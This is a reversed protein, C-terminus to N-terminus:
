MLRAVVDGYMRPDIAQFVSAADVLEPLALRPSRSVRFNFRYEGLATLLDICERTGRLGEHFEFVVVPVPHSLGRLAAPELGEVDLKFLDPKGHEAILADLTTTRVRESGGWGRYFGGHSVSEVSLTARENSIENLILDQEGAAEAVAVPVITARAGLRRHLTAVCERQPEIAVVRAGIELFVAAHRGVNAGIDFVLDGARVFQSYFTLLNRHAVPLRVPATAAEALRFLGLAELTSTTRRRARATLAGM